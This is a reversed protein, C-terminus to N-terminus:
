LPINDSHSDCTFRLTVAHTIPTIHNRISDSIKHICRPIASSFRKSEPLRYRRTKHHRLADNDRTPAWALVPRIGNQLQNDPIRDERRLMWHAAIFCMTPTSTCPSLWKTTRPGNGARSTASASIRCQDMMLIPAVIGGESSSHRMLVFSNRSSRSHATITGPVLSIDGATACNSSSSDARPIVM